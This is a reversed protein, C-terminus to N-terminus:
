ADLAARMRETDMSHVYRRLQGLDQHGLVDAVLVADGTTVWLRTALSHRMSHHSVADRPRTKIKARYALESFRRGIWVPQVGREPYRRLRILPGATVQRAALYRELVVLTGLPIPIRRHHNGKGRVTMTPPGILCIDGLELLAMEARRLGMGFGLAVILMDTEDQCAALLADAQARTLDRHVPRPVKPTPFEATPDKKIVGRQTLWRCFGRVVSFRTRRTAPELHQVSDFWKLMTRRGIKSPNPQIDAFARLTQRQSVATLQTIRGMRQKEDLFRGALKLTTTVLSSDAAVHPISHAQNGTAGALITM